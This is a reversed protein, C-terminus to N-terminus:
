LKYLILPPSGYFPSSFSPPPPPPSAHFKLVFVASPCRNANNCLSHTKRRSSHPGSIPRSLSFAPHISRKCPVAAVMLNSVFIGQILPQNPLCNRNCFFIRQGWDPCVASRTAKMFLDMLQSEPPTFQMTDQQVILIRPSESLMQLLLATIYRLQLHVKREFKSSFLMGQFGYSPERRWDASAARADMM